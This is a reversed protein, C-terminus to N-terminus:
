TSASNKKKVESIKFISWRNIFKILISVSIENALQFFSEVVPKHQSTLEKFISKSLKTSFIPFKFFKIIEITKKAFEISVLYADRKSRNGIGGINNLGKQDSLQKSDKSTLKIKILKEERKIKLDKSLQLSSGCRTFNGHNTNTMINNRIHMLKMFEEKTKENSQSHLKSKKIMLQYKTYSPEDYNHISTRKRVNTSKIKSMMYKTLKLIPELLSSDAIKKLESNNLVSLYEIFRCCNFNEANLFCSMLYSNFILNKSTKLAYEQFFIAIAFYYQSCEEKKLKIVHHKRAESKADNLFTDNENFSVKMIEPNQQFIEILDPEIATYISINDLEQKTLNSFAKDFFELFGNQGYIQTEAPYSSSNIVRSKLYEKLTLAFAKTKCRHLEMTFKSEELSLKKKTVPDQNSNCKEIARAGSMETKLIHHNLLSTHDEEMLRLNSQIGIDSAKNKSILLLYDLSIPLDYDVIYPESKEEKGSFEDSARVINSFHYAITSEISRYEALFQEFAQSTIIEEWFQKDEINELNSLFAKQNLKGHKDIYEDLNKLNDKFIRFFIRQINQAFSSERKIDKIGGLEPEDLVDDIRELKPYRLYRIKTRLKIEEQEPLDMYSVKSIRDTSLCCIVHTPYMECLDKFDKRQSPLGILYPTPADLIELEFSDPFIPIYTHMWSFPYLLALLASCASYLITRNGLLIVNKESLLSTWLKIINTLELSELLIQLSSDKNPLDSYSSNFLSAEDLHLNLRLETNAPPKVIKCIFILYNIMELLRYHHLMEQFKLAEVLSADREINSFPNHDLQM